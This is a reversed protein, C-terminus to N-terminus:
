FSLAAIILDAVFTLSLSFIWGLGLGVGVVAWPGFAGPPGFFLFALFNLIFSPFPSSCFGYLSGDSWSLSLEDSVCVYGRLTEYWNARGALPPDSLGFLSGFFSLPWYKKRLNRPNAPPWYTLLLSGEESREWVTSCCEREEFLELRPILVIILFSSSSKITPFSCPVISGGRNRDGYVALLCYCLM